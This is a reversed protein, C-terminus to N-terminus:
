IAYIKQLNHTLYDESNLPSSSFKFIVDRVYCHGGDRKTEKLTILKLNCLVGCLSLKASM